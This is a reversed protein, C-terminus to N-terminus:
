FDKFFKILSKIKAKFFITDILKKLFSKITNIFTFTYLIIDQLFINKKENDM